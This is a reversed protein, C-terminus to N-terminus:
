RILHVEGSLTKILGNGTKVQATWLYVGANALEGEQFGDWSFDPDNARGEGQYFIKAGWRNFVSFHIIEFDFKGFLFFQENYGNGDPSFATPAFFNFGVTEIAIIETARCGNENFAEVEYSAGEQALVEIEQCTLCNPSPAGNKAKWLIKSDSFSNHVKASLSVLSGKEAEVVPQDVTLDLADAEVYIVGSATSCSTAVTVEYLGAQNIIISSGLQGTSWQYSTAGEIELSLELDSGSCLVPFDDTFIVELDRIEYQTPDGVEPTKPDDSLRIPNAGDVDKNVNYLVAQSAYRGPAMHEPAEVRFVISDLGIPLNFGDLALVNTGEGSLIRGSFPNYVVEKIILGAPLTDRLRLNVQDFPSRNKLRLTFTLETCPFATRKSVEKYLNVEYPCSCADQNKEEGIMMLETAQGDSIDLGYLKRYNMRDSPVAIGYLSGLRDFFLSPMNGRLNELVPYSSNDIVRKQLDITILRGERHDFGYLINTTPHFAIDACFISPMDGTTSLVIIEEQYSDVTLDIKVFVNNKEQHSFGLLMLYRGDPSIDGSVFIFGDPLSLAKLTSLEYNADIQILHYIDGLELGYILDDVPNYCIGNLQKAKFFALEEFTIIEEQEPNITIAEFASGGNREIVRYAKGNCDFPKQAYVFQIGLLFIILGVQVEKWKM